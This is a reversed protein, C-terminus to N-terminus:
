PRSLKAPCLLATADEGEMTLITYPKDEEFYAATPNVAEMLDILWKTKFYRGDLNTYSDAKGMVTELNGEAKDLKLKAKLEPITPLNVPISKKLNDYINVETRESKDGSETLGNMPRNFRVAYFGNHIYQKGEQTFAGALAPIQTKWKQATEKSLRKAARLRVLKGESKGESKAASEVIEIRLAELLAAHDPHTKIEPFANSLNTLHELIVEPKM